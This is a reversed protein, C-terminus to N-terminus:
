HTAAVTRLRIRAKAQEVEDAAPDAAAPAAAKGTAQTPPSNQGAPPTNAGVPTITLDQVAEVEEPAGFTVDNGDFTYSCRFQKDDSAGGHVEYVIYDDFTAIREVWDSDPYTASLQEYLEDSRQEWSGEVSKLSKAGSCLAGNETALDHIQQLRSSDTANNRAGAKGREFAKSALVKAGTNIPIGTFSGEFVEGGTVFTVGSKQDRARQGNMFGVSMSDIIGDNVLNRVDQARDHRAFTGQVHIEEGEYRPVCKAVPLSGDRWDHDVYVPMSAPLTLAGAKLSENERDVGPTSLIAEFEGPSDDATAVSKVSANFSLFEAFDSM